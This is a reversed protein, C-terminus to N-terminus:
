NFGRGKQLLDICDKEPLEYTTQCYHVYKKTKEKDIRIVAAYIVIVGGVLTCVLFFMCLNLFRVSVGDSM